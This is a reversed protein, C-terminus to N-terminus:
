EIEWGGMRDTMIPRLNNDALAATLLGRQDERAMAGILALILTEKDTQPLGSAYFSALQFEKTAPQPDNM